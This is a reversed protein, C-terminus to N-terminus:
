SAAGGALLEVFWFKEVKRIDIAAVNDIVFARVNRRHIWWEDGGQAAVRDTGRRKAKLWGKKIWAGVVHSDVAFLKALGQATYHDLAANRGRPIHLRKLKVIVATETRSYGKAKLHRM